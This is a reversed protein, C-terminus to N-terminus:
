WHTDRVLGPPMAAVWGAHHSQPQSGNGEVPRLYVAACQVAYPEDGDHFLVFQQKKNGPVSALSPVKLPVASQAPGPIVDVRWLVSLAEAEHARLIFAYQSVPAMWRVSNSRPYTYKSLHLRRTVQCLKVRFNFNLCPEKYSMTYQATEIVRRYHCSSFSQKFVYLDCGQDQGKFSSGHATFVDTPTASLWQLATDADHAGLRIGLCYTATTCWWSKHDVAISVWFFLVASGDGSNSSWFLRNRPQAASMLGSIAAM